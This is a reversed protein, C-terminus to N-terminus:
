SIHHFSHYSNLKIVEKFIVCEVFRKLTAETFPVASLYSKQRNNIIDDPRSITNRKVDEEKKVKTCSTTIEWREEIPIM